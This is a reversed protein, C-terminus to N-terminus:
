FEWILGYLLGYFCRTLVLLYFLRSTHTEFM